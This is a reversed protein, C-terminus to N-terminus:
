NILSTVMSMMVLVILPVSVTILIFQTVHKYLPTEAGYITTRLIRTFKTEKKIRSELVAMANISVAFAYASLGIVKLILYITPSLSALWLFAATGMTLLVMMNTMNEYTTKM